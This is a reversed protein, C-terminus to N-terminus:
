IKIEEKLRNIAEHIHLPKNKLKNMAKTVDLSSNLPRKARWKMNSSKTPHILDKDLHFTDCLLMAFDYRNLPTAGALHYIGTLKREIIELIMESLNTNLVPSVWQDTIIKMKKKERCRKILWLAFNSKRPAPTFDFIASPRAISWKISSSSIIKEAEFKTLGYYNIPKPKDIEKYMGEEGSFVYDTSIYILFVNHFKCSKVINRTGEINVRRAIEINEECKDVNTFAAAHIVVEPKIREFSKNVAKKDCIDFQVPIGNMAKHKNYGSYTEYGKKLSISAIKSGLFGSGGTILLKVAAV